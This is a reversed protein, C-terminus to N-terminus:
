FPVSTYSKCAPTFSKELVSPSSPFSFTDAESGYGNMYRFSPPGSPADFLMKQGKLIFPVFFLALTKGSQPYLITFKSMGHASKRGRLSRFRSSEIPPRWQALRQGGGYTATNQGCFTLIKLWKM